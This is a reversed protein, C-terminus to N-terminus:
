EAGKSETKNKAKEKHYKDYIRRGQAHWFFLWIAIVLAIAGIWFVPFTFKIVFTTATVLYMLIMFSIMFYAYKLQLKKRRLFEITTTLVVGQFLGLLVAYIGYLGLWGMAQTLFSDEESPNRGEYIEFYHSFWNDGISSDSLIHRISNKYDIGGSANEMQDIYAHLSLRNEILANFTLGFNALLYLGGFYAVIYILTDPVTFGFFPIEKAGFVLVMFSILLIIIIGKQISALSSTVNAYHKYKLDFLTKISLGEDSRPQSKEYITEFECVYDTPKYETYGYIMIGYIFASLTCAITFYKIFNMLSKFSDESFKRNFYGTENEM